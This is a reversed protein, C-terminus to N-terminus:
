FSFSLLSTLFAVLCFIHGGEMSRRERRQGASTPVLGGRTKTPVDGEEGIYGHRQAEEFARARSM